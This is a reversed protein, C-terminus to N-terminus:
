KKLKSANAANGSNGSFNNLAANGATNGATNPAGIGDLDSVDTNTNQAADGFNLPANGNQNGSNKKAYRKYLFYGGAGLVAAVVVGILIKQWLAMGGSVPADTVDGSDEVPPDAADPDPSEESDASDVPADVAPDAAEPDAFPDSSGGTLLDPAVQYNMNLDYGTDYGGSGGGGGGGYYDDDYNDDPVPKKTPYDPVPTTTGYNNIPTTFPPVPTTTTVPPPTTTDPPPTTTGPPPTTKRKGGYWLYADITKATPPVKLLVVKGSPDVAVYRPKGDKCSQTSGSISLIAGKKDPMDPVSYAHFTGRDSAPKNKWLVLNTCDSGPGVSLVPGSISGFRFTFGSAEKIPFWMSRAGSYQGLVVSKGSTSLQMYKGPQAYSMLPGSGTESHYEELRIPTAPVPTTTTPKPVSPKFSVAGATQREVTWATGTTGIVIKGSVIKVYKGTGASVTYGAGARSFKWATGATGVRIGATTSQLKQTSNHVRLTDKGGAATEVVLTMSKASMTTVPIGTTPSTPVGIYYKKGAAVAFLRVGVKTLSAPIGSGAKPAATTKVTVTGQHEIVWSDAGTKSLGLRGSTGKWHQGSCAGGSTTMQFTNKRIEKATWATGPTGTKVACVAGTKAAVLFKTAKGFFRIKVSKTSAATVVFKQAKAADRTFKLDKDLYGSALTRLTVSNQTTPLGM